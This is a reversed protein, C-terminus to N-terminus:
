PWYGSVVKDILLYAVFILVIVALTFYCTSKCNQGRTRKMAQVRKLSSNLLSSATVFLGAQLPLDPDHSMQTVTMHCYFCNYKFHEYWHVLISIPPPVTILPFPPITYLSSTQCLCHSFHHSYRITWWRCRTRQRLGWTLQLRYFMLIFWVWRQTHM